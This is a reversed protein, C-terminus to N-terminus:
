YQRCPHLYPAHTMGDRYPMKLQYRINGNSLATLRNESVAPRSCVSLSLQMQEPKHRQYGHAFGKEATRALLM